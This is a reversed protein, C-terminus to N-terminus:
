LIEKVYKAPIWLIDGNKDDMAAVGVDHDTNPDTDQIYMKVLVEQGEEYPFRPFEIDPFLNQLVNKVDECGEEWAKIANEKKITAM